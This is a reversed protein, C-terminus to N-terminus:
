RDRALDEPTAGDNNAANTSGGSELLRKVVDAHGMVSQYIM